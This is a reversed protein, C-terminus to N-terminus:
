ADPNEEPIDPALITLQLIRGPYSGDIREAAVLGGSPDLRPV